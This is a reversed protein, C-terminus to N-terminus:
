KVEENESFTYNYHTEARDKVRDAFEQFRPNEPQMLSVRFEIHM